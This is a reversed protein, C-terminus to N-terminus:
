LSMANFLRRARNVDIERSSTSLYELLRPLLTVQTDHDRLQFQRWNEEYDHEQMLGLSKNLLEVPKSGRSAGLDEDELSPTEPSATGRGHASDTYPRQCLKGLM